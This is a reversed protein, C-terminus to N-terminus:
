AQSTKFSSSIIEVTSFISASKPFISIKTLLAPSAIAPAVVFYENSVQFLYFAQYIIRDLM